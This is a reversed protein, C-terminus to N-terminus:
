PLQYFKTTTTGVNTEVRLIYLGAPLPGTTPMYPAILHGNLDYVNLKMVYLHGTFDTKWCGIHITYRGPRPIPCTIAGYSFGFFLEEHSDNDNLIVYSVQMAQTEILLENGVLSVRFQNPDTPDPTSGTPGDQPLYQGVTVVLPVRLTDNLAYLPVLCMMLGIFM